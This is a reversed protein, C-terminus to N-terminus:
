CLRTKDLGTPYYIGAHIVESNRSSVGTGIGTEREVVVVERGARALARGVALGIVGAGVVLCEVSEMRSERSWSSRKWTSHEGHGICRGTWVCGQLLGSAAPELARSRRGCPSGRGRPHVGTPSKTQKSRISKTYFGDPDLCAGAF